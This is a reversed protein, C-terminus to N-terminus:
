EKAGIAAATVGGGDVSVWIVVESGGQSGDIRVFVEEPQSATRRDARPEVGHAVPNRSMHELRATIRDLVGSDMEGQAGDDKLQVTKGTESGAQRLIRRLRTVLSDFPVMRTRM